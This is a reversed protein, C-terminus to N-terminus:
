GTWFDIAQLRSINERGCKQMENRFVSLVCFKTKLTFSDQLLPRTMYKFLVEQLLPFDCLYIASSTLVLSSSVNLIPQQGGQGLAPAGPMQHGQPIPAGFPLQQLRSVAEQQQQQQQQQLPGGFAAPANIPNHHLIGPGFSQQAQLQSTAAQAQPNQQISRSADSQLPGGFANGPGSPAGLQGPHPAGGHNALLGGPSHIAGPLRSAVPQHIPISGTNNQHPPVPQYQDRHQREREQRENHERERQALEEQQQLARQRHVEELERDRDRDRDFGLPPGHPQSNM